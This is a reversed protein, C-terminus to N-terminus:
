DRHVVKTYRFIVPLMWPNGDDTDKMFFYMNIMSLIECYGSPQFISIWSVASEESFKAFQHRHKNDKSRKNCPNDIACLEHDHPKSKMYIFILVTYIDQKNIDM